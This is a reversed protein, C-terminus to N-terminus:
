VYVEENVSRPLISLETSNHPQGRIVSENPVNHAKRMAVVQSRSLKAGSVPNVYIRRTFCQLISVCLLALPSNSKMVLQTLLDLNFVRDLTLIFIVALTGGFGWGMSILITESVTEGCTDAGDLKSILKEGIDSM